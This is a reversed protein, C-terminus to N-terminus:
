RRRPPQPQTTPVNRLYRLSEINGTLELRRNPVPNDALQSHHCAMARLQRTREVQVNLDIEDAARGVFGSGFEDNLTRAVAAPLTWALVAIDLDEAVALAARTAAQHDPHGTIGGEDFVLLADAGEAIPRIFEHLEAPAVEDLAGDPFDALALREIGLEGTAAVLEAHRHQDLPGDDTHLTSAEGRTLCIVEVGTGQEVFTAIIAGLGFSEDDPHACVAVVRRFAPLSVGERHVLSGALRLGNYSRETGYPPDNLILLTNM